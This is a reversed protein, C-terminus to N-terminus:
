SNRFRVEVDGVGHCLKRIRSETTGASINKVVVVPTNILSDDKALVTRNNLFPNTNSVTPVANPKRLAIVKNKNNIIRNKVCVIRQPSGIVSIPQQDTEIKVKITPPANNASHNIFATNQKNMQVEFENTQTDEVQSPHVTSAATISEAQKRRREEKQRLFELRKKKQLEIKKLYEKTEEDMDPDEVVM